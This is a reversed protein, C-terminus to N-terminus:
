PTPPCLKKMAEGMGQGILAFMKGSGLYLFDPQSGMKDFQKQAEPDIWKGRVWGKKFLADAERDWFGATEALAVTGRFEARKAVAAQAKRIALTDSKADAGDVGLEGIVVPLNPVGLDRRVDKILNLLNFQYENRRGLDIMDNWGAFWVFGALEYGRGDYDPFHRSLNALVDRMTQIMLRYFPGPNNPGGSSPPRGEVALSMPGQTVKILLVQSQFHEGLVQGVVAEPGIENDSEGYGVTLDGKKVGLLASLLGM